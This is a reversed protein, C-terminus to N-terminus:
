DGWHKTPARNSKAKTRIEVRMVDYDPACDRESLHPPGSGEGKRREDEGREKEERGERGNEGGKGKM